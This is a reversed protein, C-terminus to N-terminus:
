SKSTHSMDPPAEESLHLCVRPGNDRHSIKVFHDGAKRARM